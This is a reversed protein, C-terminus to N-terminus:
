TRAEKKSEIWRHFRKEARKGERIDRRVRKRDNEGIGDLMADELMATVYALTARIENLTNADSHKM